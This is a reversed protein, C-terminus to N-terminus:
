EGLREGRLSLNISAWLQFGPSSVAIAKIRPTPSCSRSFSTQVSSATTQRQFLFQAKFSLKECTKSWQDLLRPGARELDLWIALCKLEFFFFFFISHIKQVAPGESREPFWRQSTNERKWEHHVREYAGHTMGMCAIM